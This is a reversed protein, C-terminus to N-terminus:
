KTITSTSKSNRAFTINFTNYVIKVKVLFPLTMWFKKNPIIDSGTAKYNYKM